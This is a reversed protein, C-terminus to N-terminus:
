VFLTNSHDRKRVSVPRVSIVKRVEGDEEDRQQQEDRRESVKRCGVSTRGNNVRFCSHVVKRERERESQKYVRTFPNDRLKCWKERREDVHIVRPLTLTSAFTLYRVSVCLCVGLSRAAQVASAFYSKSVTLTYIYKVKMKWKVDTYGPLTIYIICFINWTDREKREREQRKGKMKAKERVKQESSTGGWSYMHLFLVRREEEREEEREREWICEWWWIYLVSSKVKM